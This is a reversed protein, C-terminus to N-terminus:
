TLIFEHSKRGVSVRSRGFHVLVHFEDFFFNALNFVVTGDPEILIIKVVGRAQTHHVVLFKLCEKAHFFAFGFVFDLRVVAVQAQGNLPYRLVHHNQHGFFGLADRTGVVQAHRAAHGQVAHGVTFNLFGINKFFHKNLRGSAIRAARQARSQRRIM